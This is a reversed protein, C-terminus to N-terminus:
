RPVAAAAAAEESRAVFAQVPHGTLLRGTRKLEANQEDVTFAILKRCLQPSAAYRDMNATDAEAGLREIRRKLEHANLMIDGVALKAPGM